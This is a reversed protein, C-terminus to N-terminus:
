TNLTIIKTFFDFGREIDLSHITTYKGKKITGCFHMEYKNVEIIM